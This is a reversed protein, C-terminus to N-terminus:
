TRTSLSRSPGNKPLDHATKILIPQANEDKRVFINGNRIWVFKYNNDRKFMKAAHLLKRKEFTLSHNIYIKSAEGEIFGLQRSTLNQKERSAKVFNDKEIKRSFSLFISGGSSSANNTPRRRFCNNVMSNTIEFNLASGVLKVLDIANENDSVPIGSIEVCNNLSSQENDAIQTELERVRTELASCKESLGGFVESVSSLESTLSEMKESNREITDSYKNLHNKFDKMEERLETYRKDFKLNATNVESRLNNIALLLQATSVEDMTPDKHTTPSSRGEPNEGGTSEQSEQSSISGRRRKVCDSCTFSNRKEKLFLYDEKKLKQCPLHFVKCCALCKVRYANNAFGKSCNGCNQPSDSM